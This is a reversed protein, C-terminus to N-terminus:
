EADDFEAPVPERKRNPIPWTMPVPPSDEFGLKHRIPIVVPLALGFAGVMISYFRAPYEHSAYRMYRFPQAWFNPISM